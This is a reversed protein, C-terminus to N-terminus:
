SSGYRRPSSSVLQFRRSANYPDKVFPAGGGAVAGDDACAGGAECGESDAGTTSSGGGAVAGLSGTTAMGGGDVAGLSGTGARGGTCGLTPCAAPMVSLCIPAAM